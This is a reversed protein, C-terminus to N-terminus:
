GHSGGQELTQKAAFRANRAHSFRKASYVFDRLFTASILPM